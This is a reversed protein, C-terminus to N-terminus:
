SKNPDDLGSWTPKYYEDIIDQRYEDPTDYIDMLRHDDLKGFDYQSYVREIERQYFARDEGLFPEPKVSRLYQENPWQKM